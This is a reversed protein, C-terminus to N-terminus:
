CHVKQNSNLNQREQVKGSITITKLQDKIGLANLICIMELSIQITNFGDARNREGKLRRRQLKIWNKSQGNTYATNESLWILTSVKAKM